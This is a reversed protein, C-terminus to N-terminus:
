DDSRRTPGHSGGANQSAPEPRDGRAIRISTTSDAKLIAGDKFHLTVSGTRGANAWDALLRSVEVPMMPGGEMGSHGRRVEGM